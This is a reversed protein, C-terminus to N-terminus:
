LHRVEKGGRGRGFCLAQSSSRTGAPLGFGFVPPRRLRLHVAELIYLWIDHWHIVLVNFYMSSYLLEFYDCSLRCILMNTDQHTKYIYQIIYQCWEFRPSWVMGAKLCRQWGWRWWSAGIGCLRAHCGGAPWSLLSLSGFQDLKRALAM